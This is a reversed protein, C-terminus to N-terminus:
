RANDVPTFQVDAGPTYTSEASRRGRWSLKRRQSLRARMSIIVADPLVGEEGRFNEKRCARKTHIKGNIMKANIVTLKKAKFIIIKIHKEVKDIGTGHLQSFQSARTWRSAKVTVACGRQNTTKEKRPHTSSSRKLLVARGIPQRVFDWHVLLRQHYCRAQGVWRKKTQWSVREVFEVDQDAGCKKQGAIQPGQLPRHSRQLYNRSLDKPQRRITGSDRKLPKVTINSIM